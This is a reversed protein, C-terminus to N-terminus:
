INEVHEYTKLMKMHESFHSKGLCKQIEGVNESKGDNKSEGVNEPHM